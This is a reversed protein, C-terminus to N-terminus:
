MLIRRRDVDMSIIDGDRVAALPGGVTAEMSVHLIITAAATGSFRGDSIRVM